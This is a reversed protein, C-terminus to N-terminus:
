ECYIGSRNIRMETLKKRLFSENDSVQKAIVKEAAIKGIAKNINKLVMYPKHVYAAFIAQLIYILAPSNNSIIEPMYKKRANEMCESLEKVYPLLDKETCREMSVENMAALLQRPRKDEPFEDEFIHLKDKLLPVIFVYYQSPSLAKLVRYTNEVGVINLVDILEVKKEFQKKTLRKRVSFAKDKFKIKLLKKCLAAWKDVPLGQKYIDHMTVKM